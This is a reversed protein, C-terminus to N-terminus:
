GSVDRYDSVPVITALRKLPSRKRRKRQTDQVANVLTLRTRGGDERSSPPHAGARAVRREELAKNPPM